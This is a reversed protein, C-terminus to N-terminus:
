AEGELPLSGAGQQRWREPLRVAVAVRTGQAASSGITLTGRMQEARQRMSILGLGGQCVAEPDFGQGDDTVSLVAMGDRGRLEVVVRAAHAHKLVNNLAEQAIRYLGEALSAPLTIDEDAVLQAKVGARREVASLRYDLAGVLGQDDLAAPRLQYVLLRMEKLAQVSTESIRSLYQCAQELNGCEAQRSGADAFLTLGYLAQTVSDHLERAMREREERLAAEVKQRDSIDTGMALVGTAKGQRDTIPSYTWECIVTRADKTLNEHVHQGIAEGATLSQWRGDLEPTIEKPLILGHASKGNVEAATFGFIREAAPNWSQICRELDTLVCAIPMQEFQLRLRRESERLAELAAENQAQARKRGTIDQGVIVCGQGTGQEALSIVACDCTVEGGDRHRQKLEGRWRGERQLSASIREGESGSIGLEAVETLCRGLVEGARWGYISEAAPNWETIRGEVDAGIVADNVNALLFAQYSALEQAQRRGTVDYTIELTGVPRGGDDRQLAWRSAVTIVGGDRRTRVLEGGWRGRDKLERYVAERSGTFRTSLLDHVQRGAAQEAAWGYLSEAGRSWYCVLGAM